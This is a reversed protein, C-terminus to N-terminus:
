SLGIVKVPHSDFGSCIILIVKNGETANRLEDELMSTEESSRSVLQEYKESAEKLQEQLVQHEKEMRLM